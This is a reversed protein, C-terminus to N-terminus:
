TDSNTTNYYTMDRVQVHMAHKRALMKLNKMGIIGKITTEQGVATTNIRRATMTYQHIGLKFGKQTIKVFQITSLVFSIINQMTINPFERLLVRTISIQDFTRLLSVQYIMIMVTISANRTVIRGAMKRIM